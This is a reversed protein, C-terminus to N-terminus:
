FACFSLHYDFCDRYETYANDYMDDSNYICDLCDRAYELQDYSCVCAPAGTCQIFREDIDAYCLNILDVLYSSHMPLINELWPIKNYIRENFRTGLGPVFTYDTIDTEFVHQRLMSDNYVIACRSTFFVTKKRNLPIMRVPLYNLYTHIIGKSATNNLRYDAFTDNLAEIYALQHMMYCMTDDRM